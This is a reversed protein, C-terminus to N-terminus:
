VEPNTSGRPVSRLSNSHQKKRSALWTLFEQPATKLVKNCLSSTSGGTGVDREGPVWELRTSHLSLVVRVESGKGYHHPRVDLWYLYVVGVDVGDEREEDSGWVTGGVIACATFANFAISAIFALATLASVVVERALDGLLAPRESLLKPPPFIHLPIHQPHQQLSHPGEPAQEHKKHNPFLSNGQRRPFPPTPLPDRTRLRTHCRIGKMPCSYESANHVETSPHASM